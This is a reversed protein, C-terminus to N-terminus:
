HTGGHRALHDVMSILTPLRHDGAMAKVAAAADELDLGQATVFLPKHSNGRLVPIGPAGVFATKAVGVVAVKGHLAEFLHAGLGPRQPGLWVFGDVVVLEVPHNLVKLVALLCPLEREFFQGPQYPAVTEVLVRHRSVPAANSLARVVVCAAAAGGQPPYHVDTIAIM